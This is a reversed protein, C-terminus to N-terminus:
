GLNQGDHGGAPTSGSPMCPNNTPMPLHSPRDADEADETPLENLDLVKSVRHRADHRPPDAPDPEARVIVM